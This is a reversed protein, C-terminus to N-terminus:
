PTMTTMMKHVNCHAEQDRRAMQDTMEDDTFPPLVTCPQYDAVYRERSEMMFDFERNNAHAAAPCAVTEACLEVAKEPSTASCPLLSAYKTLLHLMYDYVYDMSLDHCAFRSGEEAMWRAQELHANGSDIAFKIPHRRV